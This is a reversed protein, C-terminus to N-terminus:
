QLTIKDPVGLPKLVTKGCLILIEHLYFIAYRDHHFVTCKSSNEQRVKRRFKEIGTDEGADELEEQQIMRGRFASTLAMTPITLWAHVPFGARSNEPPRKILWGQKSERFPSNEIESLADNYVHRNSKAPVYFVIARNNLRWLPKGCMFGRDMAVFVIVAPEGPSAIAQEIVEGAPIIDGTEIAAFRMAVPLGGNPDWIVWIKFGSVAVRIKKIRGGRRRLEPAKERAAKGRRGNFGALRALSQSQM